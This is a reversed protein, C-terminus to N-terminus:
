KTKFEENEMINSLDKFFDNNEIIKKGKNYMKINTDNKIIINNEM